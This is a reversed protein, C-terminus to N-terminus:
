RVATGLFTALLLTAVAIYNLAAADILMGIGGIITSLAVLAVAAVRLVEDARDSLVEGGMTDESGFIADVASVTQPSLTNRAADGLLPRRLSPRTANSGGQLPLAWVPMSGTPSSPQALGATAAIAAAPITWRAASSSGQTTTSLM